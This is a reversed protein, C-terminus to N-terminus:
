ILTPIACPLNKQFNPYYSLFFPVAFLDHLCVFQRNHAKKNAMLVDASGKALGRSVGMRQCVGFATPPRLDNGDGLLDGITELHADLGRSVSWFVPDERDLVASGAIDDFPGASQDTDLQTGM